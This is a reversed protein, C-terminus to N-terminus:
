AMYSLFSTQPQPISPQRAPPLSYQYDLDQSIPLEPEETDSQGSDDSETSVLPLLAQIDPHQTGPRFHHSITSSAM